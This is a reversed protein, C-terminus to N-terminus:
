GRRNRRLGGGGVHPGLAPAAAPPEHGTLKEARAIPSAFPLRAGRTAMSGVSNVDEVALKLLLPM